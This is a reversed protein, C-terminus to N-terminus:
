EETVTIHLEALQKTSVPAPADLMLDRAKQDKPFAIVERINPEDSLLMCFRDLGMAIGGHPPTGFAFAKLLHGFRQQVEQRSMGLISFIRQQLHPEHIRMSGGGLEIGNLVLDYAQARCALPDKELLDQDEALPRTFPHHVASLAGNGAVQEFLPFETVWLYRWVSEDVLNLRRAAEQRVQGLPELAQKYLGAGFFISDGTVARCSTVIQQAKKEGLHKLIPSVVRGDKVTLYALGGAGYNKALETFEDIDKRTFAAGGPIRLAAVRGGAAVAATFVNFGSDTVKETIDTLPLDYRLDPKDSGYREMAERYTLRPFPATQIARDPRIRETVTRIGQEIIRLIDEQVAFSMEIEFQTFEPQRDGRQDEDRFCRAIQFYRDIGAAMLLQKLQQPSQPLVYFNGPHIRSPVVYERAGEPTGKILMPTEVEMFGARHFYRRIAQTIDHRRQLNSALRSRRLDLYRYQLRLEENVEVDSSIEFPPTVAPNIVDLERVVLEVQGTALTDNVMGAPREAVTGAVRIVYESRVLEAATLAAQSVAPDVKLQTIGWRDRLDIFILGGHDRRAHVWGSLVAQQGVHAPRLENNTHTRYQNPSITAQNTQEQPMM